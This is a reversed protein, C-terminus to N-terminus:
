GLDLTLQTDSSTKKRPRMVVVASPFPADKKSGGFKLRGRVFRVEQNLCYDQFWATDTRAPVLCVVLLGKDCEYSAKRMWTGITRGYPPNLWVPGNTDKHWDRAFADQREPDAHDPGYWDDCLASTSLAAADLQFDFEANLNNYFPKPTTWTDVESSFAVGESGTFGGSM